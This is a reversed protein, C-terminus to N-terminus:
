RKNPPERLADFQKKRRAKRRAEEKAMQQRKYYGSEDAFWWWLMALGFPILVQWWEWTAVPGYEMLKLGMFVLGLLVFLM